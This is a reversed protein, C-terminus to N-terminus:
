YDLGTEGLAVVKPERSLALLEDEAILRDTCSSPHMGASAFVNPHRRAHELVRPQNERDVAVTLFHGVQQAEARALVDSVDWGDDASALYDLHCHSDVLM